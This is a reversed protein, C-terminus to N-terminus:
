CCLLLFGYRVYRITRYARSVHVEVANWVVDAEDDVVDPDIYVARRRRIIVPQTIRWEAYYLKQVPETAVVKVSETQGDGERVSVETLAKRSDKM